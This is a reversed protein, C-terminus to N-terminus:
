GALRPYPYRASGKVPRARMNMMPPVRKALVEGAGVDRVPDYAVSAPNFEGRAFRAEISRLWRVTRKEDHTARRISYMYSPQARFYIMLATAPDCQPQRVAWQLLKTGNDWNHVDCACHIEHATARRLKIATGARRLQPHMVDLLDTAVIRTLPNGTVRLDDVRLLPTLDLARLKNNRLDLVELDFCGRLDVQKLRNDHAIVEFLRKPRNSLSLRDLKNKAVNVRELRTLWSLPPLARVDGLKAELDLNVVRGREVTSDALM